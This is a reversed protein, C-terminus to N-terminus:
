KMLIMKVTKRFDGARIVTFYIGSAVSGNRAQGNWQVTYSGASCDEDVLTTVLAGLINYVSLTVHTSKPVDFKITTSPNFPNPYNQRLAFEKPIAMMGDSVLDPKKTVTLHAPITKTGNLPDNSAISINARYDGSLLGKANFKVTVDQTTSSALTGSTPNESLWECSGTSAWVIANYLLQYDDHVSSEEPINSIYVRNRYAIICTSSDPSIAILQAGRLARSWNVSQTPYATYLEAPQYPQSMGNLLPHPYQVFNLNQATMSWSYSITSDLGLLPVLHSPNNPAHSASLSGSTAILGHGEEVYQKIAAWEADSFEWGHGSDWADSIILVDAASSVLDAYTINDKNLSTYDIIISSQGFNTWNANLNDWTATAYDSGYSDLVSAKITQSQANSSVRLKM